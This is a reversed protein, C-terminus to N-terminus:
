LVGFLDCGDRVDGHDGDAETRPSFALSEVAGEGQRPALVRQNFGDGLGIRVGDDGESAAAAHVGLMPEGLNWGQEVCVIGALFAARGDSLNEEALM